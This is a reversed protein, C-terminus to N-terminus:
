PDARPSGHAVESLPRWKNGLLLEGLSGGGVCSAPHSLSSRQRVMLLDAVAAGKWSLSRCDHQVGTSRGSQRAVM